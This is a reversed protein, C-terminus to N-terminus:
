YNIVNKQWWIMQRERRSRESEIWFMDRIVRGINAALTASGKARNPHVKDYIDEKRLNESHIVHVDKEEFLGSTVTSNFFAKKRNLDTSATPAISSVIVPTNPNSKRFNKVISTLKEAAKKPHTTKLDNIGCHIVIGDVNEEKANFSKLSDQVEDLTYCKEKKVQCGYSQGLRKPDVYKLISDHLITINPPDSKYKDYNHDSDINSRKMKEKNSGMKGKPGNQGAKGKRRDEDSTPSHNQNLHRDKNEHLTADDSRDLARRSYAPKSTEKGTSDHQFSKETDHADRNDNVVNNPNIKKTNEAPNLTLKVKNESSKPIPTASESILILSENEFKDDAEDKFSPCSQYIKASIERKILGLNKKTVSAYTEIDSESGSSQPDSYSDEIVSNSLPNRVASTSRNMVKNLSEIDDKGVGNSVLFKENAIKVWQFLVHEVDYMRISLKRLENSMCLVSQLLLDIKASSDNM